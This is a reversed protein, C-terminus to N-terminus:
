LKGCLEARSEIDLWLRDAVIAAENDHCGDVRSHICARTARQMNCSSFYDFAM